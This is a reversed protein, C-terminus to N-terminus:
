GGATYAGVFHRIGIAFSTYAMGMIGLLSSSALMTLNKVLCLPLLVLTMVGILSRTRTTVISLLDRISDALIMSYSLNGAFCELAASSAIIWVTKIGRTQDWADAYSTTGMMKFVRAIIMFTYAGIAAIMKKYTALAACEDFDWHTAGLGVWLM